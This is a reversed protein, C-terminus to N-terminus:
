GSLAAYAAAFLAKWPYAQSYRVWIRRATLRVEAAIKLLRLRITQVQASAWETGALALRRLAHVLVYALSSFYLRLQNARMTETSLRDSFLSLQEKIRNEMEGRACYFREYLQQAPWARVELATVVFRPNEGKELYEAKAVVRRSRSWSKRTRYSFEAFVRAAKGTCRHEQKAERMQRGIKRRLRSNRALGFVYDVGHKECWAMLEERCFGSDGRLIIGVRPWRRRIQRVIREVEAVSGASADQNSPRLRACLLHEGCFIYLPLYCYHGYYGHFFRAEQEGHLPTDTVDLDLVIEQPPKAYAELFIEVLLADLADSSYSIKHYRHPGSAPTLELRNLTSKGALPEELERKGALLGLLPDHRLEEHDNLDEYGLALAYVRQALLESLTHEVREPDRGDRFCTAMRKLLRIKKDVARLLLAGGDTTMRSGDFHAEVRRSFHGEFLFGTQNCETM